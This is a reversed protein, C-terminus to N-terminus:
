EHDGNRGSVQKYVVFHVKTTMLANKRIIKHVSLIAKILKILHDMDYYIGFVHVVYIINLGNTSTPIRNLM